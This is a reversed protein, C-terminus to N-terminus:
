KCKIADPRYEWLKYFKDWAKSEAEGQNNAEVNFSKDLQGGKYSWCEYTMANASAGMLTAIVVVMLVKKM